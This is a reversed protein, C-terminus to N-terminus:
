LEKRLRAVPINMKERYKAVTRRAIIYGRKNLEEKLEEDTLPNLKDEKEICEVIINKVERTSVEEGTDSQIGESFFYRLPFVGWDCQIYKSNVVRSVTSVDLGTIESIDKLIMPRLNSEDGTKFYEKQFEIIASMTNFLTQQRQKIADIFWKASDIKQKVFTITDKEEKTPEQKAVFNDIINSYGKSIKLEPMNYSNLSLEPEGSKLELIFDPIIQQAQETYMNEYGSGPKPNLKLIEHISDRLLDDDIGLKQAIKTYHKKSFENFCNELILVATETEKTKEKFGLQILLCEQLTRAGVGPPDFTQIIKLIDELEEATSEVGMKFAIDDTISMLDRRLYGDNDISGIIFLGLVHERNDLYHFALQEELSQHLSPTNSITSYEKREDKSNNNVSTKYTPIEDDEIYDEITFEDNTDPEPENDQDEFNVENEELVPNEELEKKIRQELQILPLELLKITQIQLPSLKQVLKQQLSQKLM